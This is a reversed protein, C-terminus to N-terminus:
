FPNTAGRVEFHLHSGTSRGTSGVYGILDGQSVSSGAGAVNSSHHAYLTQTGNPHEIVIYNGYGGNWSGQKSIIVNGSASAYVPTGNSAALDVSNSGHLGQSRVSGPVPNMYYGAGAYSSPSAQKPASYSPASRKREVVKPAPIEGGPIIIDTGISLESDKFIGNFHKIEEESGHYTEAIKALTDGKEIVHTVGSIPLIILKQNPQIIRKPGLENAWAITNPSIGFMDAIQSLSDGEKVVYISIQQASTPASGEETVPGGISSLLSDDIISVSSEEAILEPDANQAGQLLAMTQINEGSVNSNTTNAYVYKGFLSPVVDFM